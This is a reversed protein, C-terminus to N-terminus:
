LWKGVWQYANHAYTYWALSINYIDRMRIKLQQRELIIKKQSRGQELKQRSCKLTIVLEKAQGKSLRKKKGIRNM